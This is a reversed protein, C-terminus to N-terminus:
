VLGEDILLKMIYERSSIINIDEKDVLEGHESLEKIEGSPMLVAHRDQYWEFETESAGDRNIVATSKRELGRWLIWGPENHKVFEVLERTTRSGFLGHREHVYHVETEGSYTLPIHNKVLLGAAWKAM